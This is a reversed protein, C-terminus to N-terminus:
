AVTKRNFNMSMLLTCHRNVLEGETTHLIAEKVEDEDSYESLALVRQDRLCLKRPRLRPRKKMAQVQNIKRLRRM